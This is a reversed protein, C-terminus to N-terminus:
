MSQNSHVHRAQHSVFVSIVSVSFQYECVANSTPSM